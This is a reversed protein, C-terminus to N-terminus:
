LMFFPFSPKRACVKILSSSGRSLPVVKFWRYQISVYLTPFDVELNALPADIRVIRERGLM